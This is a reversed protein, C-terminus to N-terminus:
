AALYNLLKKKAAPLVTEEVPFSYDFYCKFTAPNPLESFEKLLKLKIETWSSPIPFRRVLKANFYQIPVNGTYTLFNSFKYAIVENLKDTQLLLYGENKYLPTLGIEEFELNDFVFDFVAKAEALLEEIKPLYKQIIDFVKEEPHLSKARENIAKNESDRIIKKLYDNEEEDEQDNDLRGSNSTENKLNKNIKNQNEIVRKLVGYLEDLEAYYPMVFNNHLKKEINKILSLIRYEALEYDDAALLFHELTLRESKM